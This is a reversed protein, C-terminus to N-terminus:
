ALIFLTYLNCTTAPATTQRATRRQRTSCHGDSAAHVKVQHLAHQAVDAPGPLTWLFDDLLYAQSKTAASHPRCHSPHGCCMKCCNGILTGRQKLLHKPAAALLPLNIDTHGHVSMENVDGVPESWSSMALSMCLDKAHRHVTSTMSSHLDRICHVRHVLCPNLRVQLTGLQADM